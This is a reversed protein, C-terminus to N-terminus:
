FGNIDGCIYMFHGYVGLANTSDVIVIWEFM